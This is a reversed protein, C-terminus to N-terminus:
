QQLGHNPKQGLVKQLLMATQFDWIIVGRRAFGTMLNFLCDRQAEIRSVCGKDNFLGREHGSSVLIGRNIGLTAGVGM